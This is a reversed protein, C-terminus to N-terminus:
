RIISVYYPSPADYYSSVTSCVADPDLYSFVTNRGTLLASTLTTVWSACTTAPVDKWANNVNCIGVWDGRFTPLVLVHGSKDVLMDTVKGSCYAAAHAPSAISLSTVLLAAIAGRLRAGRFKDAAIQGLDRLLDSKLNNINM